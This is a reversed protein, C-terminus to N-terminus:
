HRAHDDVEDLRHGSVEDPAPMQVVLHRQEDAGRDDDHEHDGQDVAHQDAAEQRSGIAHEL